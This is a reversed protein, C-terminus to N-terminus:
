SVLIRLNLIPIWPLLSLNIFIILACLMVRAICAMCCKSSGMSSNM